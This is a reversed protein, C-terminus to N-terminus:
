ALSMNFFFPVQRQKIKNNKKLKDEKIVLALLRVLNVGM